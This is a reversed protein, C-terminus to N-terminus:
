IFFEDLHIITKVKFDNELERRIEEAPVRGDPTRYVFPVVVVTEIGERRIVEPDEIPKKGYFGGQRRDVLYVNAPTVLDGDMLERFRRGIGWFAVKVGQGLFARIKERFLGDAVEIRTGLLRNRFFVREAGLDGTLEDFLRDREADSLREPALVATLGLRRISEPPEVAKGALTGGPERGLLHVNADKLTKEGVVTRLVQEDDAWVGLGGYKSLLYESNARANALVDIPARVPRIRQHQVIERFLCVAEPPYHERMVELTGRLIDEGPMYQWPMFLVNLVQEAQALALAKDIVIAGINYDNNIARRHAFKERSFVASFLLPTCCFTPLYSVRSEVLGGRCLRAHVIIDHLVLVAGDKLYPLVALYSLIEGPLRHTTDMICFDIDGGIERICQSIDRGFYTKWTPGRTQADYSGAVADGVKRTPDDYLTHAYDVSYVVAAPSLERLLLKTTGGAYVGIELVKVPRKERLFHLLFKLDNSTMGSGVTDFGSLDVGAVANEFRAWEESTMLTSMEADKRSAWM